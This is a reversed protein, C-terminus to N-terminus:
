ARSGRRVSIQDDREFTAADDPASAVRDSVESVPPSGTPQQGRRRRASLAMVLVFFGVVVIAGILIAALAM